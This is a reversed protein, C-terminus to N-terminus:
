PSICKRLTKYGSLRAVEDFEDILPSGGYCPVKYEQAFRLAAPMGTLATNQINRQGATKWCIRMLRIYGEEM